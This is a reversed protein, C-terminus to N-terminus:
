FDLINIKKIKLIVKDNLRLDYGSYRSKSKYNEYDISDFGLSGKFYEFGRRNPLMEPYSFGLGWKGLLKTSYGM